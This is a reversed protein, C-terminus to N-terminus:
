FEFSEVFEEFLEDLVGLAEEDDPLVALLLLLLLPPLIPPNPAFWFELELWFEPEFWLEPAVPEADPAVEEEADAFSLPLLVAEAPELDDDLLDFDLEEDLLSALLSPLVVSVLFAFDEPADADPLSEDPLLLEASLPESELRLRDSYPL